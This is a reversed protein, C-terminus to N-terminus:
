DVLAIEAVTEAAHERRFDGLARAAVNRGFDIRVRRQDLGVRLERRHALGRGTKGASLPKRSGVPTQCAPPTALRERGITAGSSTLPSFTRPPERSISM